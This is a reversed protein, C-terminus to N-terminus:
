FQENRQLTGSDVGGAGAAVGCTRAKDAAPNPIASLDFKM